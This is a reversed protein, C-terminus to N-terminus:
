ASRTRGSVARGPSGRQRGEPRHGGGVGLRDGGVVLVPPHVLGQGDLVQGVEPVEQLAVEADRLERVLGHEGVQRPAGRSPRARSGRSRRRSGRRRAARPRRPSGGSCPSPGSGAPRRAPRPRSASTRAPARRAEVQEDELRPQNGPLPRSSGPVAAASVDGADVRDVGQEGALPRDNPVREPVQHQRREDEGRVGDAQEGAEGARGDEVHQAVVEDAGGARLPQGLPRDTRAVHQPAASGLMTVTAPAPTRSGATPCRARRTSRRTARGRATRRGPAVFEVQRRDHADAEEDRDDVDGILKM